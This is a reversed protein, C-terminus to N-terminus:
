SKNGAIDNMNNSSEHDKMLNIQLQKLLLNVINLLHLRGNLLSLVTVESTGKLTM